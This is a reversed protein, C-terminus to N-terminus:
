PTQEFNITASTTCVKATLGSGSAITIMLVLLLFTNSTIKTWQPNENFTPKYLVLLQKESQMARM